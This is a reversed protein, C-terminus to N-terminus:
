TARSRERDRAVAEGPSSHRRGDARRRSAPRIEARDRNSVQELRALGVVDMQHVEIVHDPGGDPPVEDALAIRVLLLDVCLPRAPRIALPRQAIGRDLPPGPRAHQHEHPSPDWRCLHGPVDVADNRRPQVQGVSAYNWGADHLDLLGGRRRRRHALYGKRRTQQAPAIREQGLHLSGFPEGGRGAQHAVAILDVRERVLVHDALVVPALHVRDDTALSPLDSGGVGPARALHEEAVQVWPQQAVFPRERGDVRAQHLDVPHVLPGRLDVPDALEAAHDVHVRVRQREIEDPPRHASVARHGSWQASFDLCEEVPVTGDAPEVVDGVEEDSRVVAALQGRPGAIGAREPREVLPSSRGAVSGAARATISRESELPTAFAKKAVGIRLGKAEGEGGAHAADAADQVDVDDDIPGGSVRLVPSLDAVVLNGGGGARLDLVRLQALQEHRVEVRDRDGIFVDRLAPHGRRARLVEDRQGVHGVQDPSRGAPHVLGVVEGVHVLGVRRSLREEVQPAVRAVPGRRAPQLEVLVDALVVVRVAPRKREPHALDEVGHHHVRARLVYRSEDGRRSDDGVVGAVRALRQM